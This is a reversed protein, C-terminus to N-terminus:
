EGFGVIEGASEFSWFVLVAGPAALARPFAQYNVTGATRSTVPHGDERSWSRVPLEYTLIRSGPSGPMQVIEDRLFMVNQADPIIPDVFGPLRYRIAGTDAAVVAYPDKDHADRYVPRIQQAGLPDAAVIRTRDGDDVTTNALQRPGTLTIDVFASPTRRFWGAVVTNEFRTLTATDADEFERTVVVAGTAPDIETVSARSPDGHTCPVLVYIAGDTMAVSIRQEYCASPDMKMPLDVSWMRKGTRGDYRAMRETNRRILFGPTSLAETPDATWQDLDAIDRTYDAHHWLNEGTMADFANWGVRGWNAVVVKGGDVSQLTGPSYGVRTSTDHQWPATAGEVPPYTSLYHWRPAGTAGDYATLGATSAVVFGAGAVVVNPSGSGSSTTVMPLPVRFREEGLRNPVAPVTTAAARTHDFRVTDDAAVVAVAAIPGSVALGAAVAMALGRRLSLAEVVGPRWRPIMSRWVPLAMLAAGVVVLGSATLATPLSAFFPVDGRIDRYRRVLHGSLAMVPLVVIGAGMALVVVARVWDTTPLIWRSSRVVEVATVAVAALVVLGLVIATWAYHRALGHAQNLADTGQYSEWNEPQASAFTVSYLALLMGGLVLGCGLGGTAGLIRSGRRAVSEASETVM